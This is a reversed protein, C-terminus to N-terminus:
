ITVTVIFAFRAAYTRTVCEVVLVNVVIANVSNANVTAALQM